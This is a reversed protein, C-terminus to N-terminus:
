LRWHNKTGFPFHFKLLFAPQKATCFREPLEPKGRAQKCTTSQTATNKNHFSPFYAGSFRYHHKIHLAIGPIQSESSFRGQSATLTKCGWRRQPLLLQWHLPCVPFSTAKLLAYKSVPSHVSCCATPPLPNPHTKETTTERGSGGTPLYCYRGHEVSQKEPFKQVKQGLTTIQPTSITRRLATETTKNHYNRCGGSSPLSIPRLFPPSSQMPTTVQM